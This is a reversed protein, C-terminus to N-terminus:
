RVFVSRVHWVRAFMYSEFSVFFKRYINIGSGYEFVLSPLLEAGLVRASMLGRFNQIKLSNFYDSSVRVLSFDDLAKKRVM